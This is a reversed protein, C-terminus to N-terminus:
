YRTFTTETEDTVFSRFQMEYERLANDIVAQTKKVAEEFNETKLDHDTIRFLICTLYFGNGLGHIKHIVVYPSQKSTFITSKEIPENYRANAKWIM